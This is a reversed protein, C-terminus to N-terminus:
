LHYLLASFRYNYLGKNQGYKLKQHNLTLSLPPIKLVSTITNTLFKLPFRTDNSRSVQPLELKIIKELM